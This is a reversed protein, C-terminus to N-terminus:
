HLLRPRKFPNFSEDAQKLLLSPRLVQPIPLAEHPPVYKHRVVNHARTYRTVHAPSELRPQTTEDQRQPSHTGEITTSCAYQDWPLPSSHSQTHTRTSELLELDFADLDELPLITHCLSVDERQGSFHWTRDEVESSLNNVVERPNDKIPQLGDPHTTPSPHSYTPQSVYVRNSDSHYVPPHEPTRALMHSDHYQRDIQVVSDRGQQTKRHDNLYFQPGHTALASGFPPEINSSRDIGIEGHPHKPLNDEHGNSRPLFSSRLNNLSVQQSIKKLDDLSQYRTNEDANAAYVELQPKMYLLRETFINFLPNSVSSDSKILDSPSSVEGNSQHRLHGSSVHTVDENDRKGDTFLAARATRPPSTSWSIADSVDASQKTSIYHKVRPEEPNVVWRANSRRSVTNSSPYSDDRRGEVSPEVRLAQDRSWRLEAHSLNGQQRDGHTTTSNLTGFHTEMMTSRKSQKDTGRSQEFCKARHDGRDGGTPRSLFDMRTFTLDPLDCGAVPFSSKSKSFLERTNKPKLTVQESDVNTARFDENLMADKLKRKRGTLASRTASVKSKTEGKYEYKDVKTKRRPRKEYKQVFDFKANSRNDTTRPAVPDSSPRRVEHNCDRPLLVPQYNEDVNDQNDLAKETSAHHRHERALNSQRGEQPIHQRARRPVQEPSHLRFM